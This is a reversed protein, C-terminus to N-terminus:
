SSNQSREAVLGAVYHCYQNYDEVTVTGQGLDKQVFEAMGCGMRETIDAIVEQSAEPLSRFVNGCRYFQELLTKEDGEGVGEMHWGEQILGTLHFTQLHAIKEHERGKFAEMDDEITDLGRLALYFILINMCLDEPLQRIVAAFSRSVKGLMNDCFKSDEDATSSVRNAMSSPGYLLSLACFVEDLHTLQSLKSHKHIEVKGYAGQKSGTDGQRAGSGDTIGYPAIKDGLWPGAKGKGGMHEATPDFRYITKLDVWKDTTLTTDLDQWWLPLFKEAIIRFWPSWLLGSSPDMMQQLEQLSVYKTDIVEEPNPKVKVDAQIFLIYDIEHEGWEAEPGHTVVDSAWYHMRTLFKFKKLPVQKAKVGLEQDLKRVAARKVGMVSGDAVDKPTDVETPEYGHLPHSCCTNTWVEPFTIKDAARQQLLMKGESNFLFVSFARHLIGRPTKKGFAHTVKKNAHGTVNDDEDLVICEDKVMFEEQTM